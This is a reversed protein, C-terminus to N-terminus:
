FIFALIAIVFSLVGAVLAASAIIKVPILIQLGAIPPLEVQCRLAEIQTAYSQLSKEQEERVSIFQNQLADIQETYQRITTFQSKMADIQSTYDQLSRRQAELDRHLGLQVQTYLETYGAVMQEISQGSAADTVVQVSEEAQSVAEEGAYSSPRWEPAAKAGVVEVGEQIVAEVEQVATGAAEGVVDGERGSGACRAPLNPYNHEPVVQTGEYNFEMQCTRCRLMQM